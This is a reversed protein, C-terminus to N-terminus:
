LPIRNILQGSQPDMEGDALTQSAADARAGRRARKEGSM